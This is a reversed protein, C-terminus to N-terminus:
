VASAERCELDPREVEQRVARKFANPASAAAQEYPPRCGSSTPSVSSYSASGLRNPGDIQRHLHAHDLSVTTNKAASAIASREIFSCLPPSCEGPSFFAVVTTWQWAWLISVSLALFVGTEFYVVAHCVVGDSGVCSRCAICCPRATVLTVLGAREGLARGCPSCWCSPM